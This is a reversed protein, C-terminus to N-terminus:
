GYSTEMYHHDYVHRRLWFRTQWSYGKDNWEKQEPQCIDADKFDGYMSSQREEGEELKWNAPLEWQSDAYM